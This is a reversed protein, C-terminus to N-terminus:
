HAAAVPEVHFKAAFRPLALGALAVGMGGVAFGLVVLLAGIGIVLTSVEFAMVSSYLSTRLAAAQFATNRLNNVVPRGDSGILAEAEISGACGTGGGCYSTRGHGGQRRGAAGLVRQCEDTGTGVEDDREGVALGDGDEVRDLRRGLGAVEVAHPHVLHVGEVVAGVEVAPVAVAEAM